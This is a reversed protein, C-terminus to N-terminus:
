DNETSTKFTVPPFLDFYYDAIYKAGKLGCNYRNKIDKVTQLKKHRNKLIIYRIIMDEDALNRDEAIYTVEAFKCAKYFTSKSRIIQNCVLSEISFLLELEDVLAGTFGMNVSGDANVYEALKEALREISIEM